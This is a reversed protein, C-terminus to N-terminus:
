AKDRYRVLFSTDAVADDTGAAYESHMVLYIQNVASTAGSNYGIERMRGRINIRHIRSSTIGEIGTERTGLQGMYNWLVTFKDRFSKKVHFPSQEENTTTDYLFDALSDPADDASNPHWQVLFLRYRMYGTAGADRTLRINGQISTPKINLGTRESSGDGQSILTIPTANFTTNVATGSAFTGKHKLESYKSVAQRVYAKTAKSVNKQKKRPIRVLKGAPM